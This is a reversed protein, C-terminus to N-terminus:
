HGSKVFWYKNPKFANKHMSSDTIGVEYLKLRAELNKNKKKEETLELSCSGGM